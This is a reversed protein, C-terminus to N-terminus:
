QDDCLLLDYGHHRYVLSLAHTTAPPCVPAHSRVHGAHTHTNTHKHTHTHTHTHSLSHTHTHTQTHTHTVLPEPSTKIADMKSQTAKL